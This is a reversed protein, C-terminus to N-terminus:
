LFSSGTFTASFGLLLGPGLDLNLFLKVVGDKKFLLLIFSTQLFDWLDEADGSSDEALFELNTSGNSTSEDLIKGLLSKNEWDTVLAGGEVEVPTGLCFRGNLLGGFFGSLFSSFGLLLSEGKHFM